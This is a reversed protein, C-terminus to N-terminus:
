CRPWRYDSAVMITERFVHGFIFSIKLFLFAQESTVCCEALLVETYRVTVDRCGM